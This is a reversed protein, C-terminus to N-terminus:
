PCAVVAPVSAVDPTSAISSIVGVVSMGPADPVFLMLPVSYLLKPKEIITAFNIFKLHHHFVKIFSV